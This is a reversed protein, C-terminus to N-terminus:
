ATYGVPEDSEYEFEEDDGDHRSVTLTIGIILVVVGLLVCVLPGIDDVFDIKLHNAKANNVATTVSAPTESLNGKFLILKTAGTIDELSLTESESV